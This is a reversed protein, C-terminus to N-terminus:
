HNISELPKKLTELPTLTASKISCERLNVGTRIYRNKRLNCTDFEYLSSQEFKGFNVSSHKTKCEIFTKYTELM